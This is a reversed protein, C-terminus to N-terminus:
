RSPSRPARSRPRGRSAPRRQRGARGVSVSAWRSRPRRLPHRFALARDGKRSSPKALYDRMGAELCRERDGALANAPMAVIPVRDSGGESARIERTAEYGDLVPMQCDMLVVMYRTRMVADVAERGNAALDVDFGLRELSRQVVRQNVANDEVLLIRDGCAPPTLSPAEELAPEGPAHPRDHVALMLRQLQSM